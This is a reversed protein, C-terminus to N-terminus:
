TVRTLPEWQGSADVDVDSLENDEDDNVVDDDDHDDEDGYGNDDDDTTDMFPASDGSDGGM